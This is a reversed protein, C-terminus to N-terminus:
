FQRAIKSSNNIAQESNEFVIARLANYLFEEAQEKQIYSFETKKFFKTVKFDTSLIEKSSRRLGVSGVIQPCKVAVVDYAERMFMKQADSGMVGGALVIKGRFGLFNKLITITNRADQGSQIGDTCLILTSNESCPLALNPPCLEKKQSELLNREKAVLEDIIDKPIDCGRIVHDKLLPQDTRDTIAGVTLGNYKFSRILFIDLPLDLEKAIEYALATATPKISLVVTNPNHAYYKILQALTKGAEERSAFYPHICVRSNPLSIRRLSYISSRPTTSNSSTNEALM